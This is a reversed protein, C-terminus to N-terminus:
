ELYMSVKPWSKGLGQGLGPARRSVVGGRPGTATAGCAGGAGISVKSTRSITVQVQRLIEMTEM